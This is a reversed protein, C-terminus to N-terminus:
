PQRLLRTGASRANVSRQTMSAAPSAHIRRYRVTANPVPAAEAAETRQPRALVSLTGLAIAAVYLPTELGEMTVFQVSVIFGALSTVVMCAANATWREADTGAGPRALPWLRVIATVYFLLLFLAGPVGIEAGMQLWLSHAEKGEPWGFEQVVIGFHDPGAGFWPYKKMITVCDMWLEVRSQASFDREEEGALSTMFRARVEPGALTLALMIAAGIALLYRPRKPAVVVAAVGAVILGLMGGRSFTLLVTHGILLASGFALAKEWWPRTYLGLFVAVGLCTLMSIALCNNDMGAYGVTNAENSGGLYRMNLDFAVFGASGVLVWALQKLQRVSQVSTVAIIFLISRKLQPQVFGLAIAHDPAAAASVLVWLLNAAFLIFLLRGRGFHWSGFGKFAWGIITAIAIVESFSGDPGAWGFMVQPRVIDFIWYICVGVRPL